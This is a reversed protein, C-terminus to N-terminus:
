YCRLEGPTTAMPSTPMPVPSPDRSNMPSDLDAAGAAMAVSRPKGGVMVTGRGGGGGGGGAGGGGAASQIRARAASYPEGSGVVDDHDSDEGESESEQDSGGEFDVAAQQDLAEQAAAELIAEREAEERDLRQQYSEKPPRSSKRPPATPLPANPAASARDALAWGSVDNAGGPEEAAGCGGAPSVVAGATRRRRRDKRPTGGGGGGGGEGGGGRRGSKRAKKRGSVEKPPRDHPHYITATVMLSWTVVSPSRPVRTTGSTKPSAHTCKGSSRRAKLDGKRPSRLELCERLERAAANQRRIAAM